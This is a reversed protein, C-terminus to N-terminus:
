PRTFTMHTVGSPTTVSEIQFREELGELGDWLREGRGLVIPVIVVHLHDILDAVLFQRVTSPGGGIRVDLDGAAERAQRLAEEPTADIFHFTTGGEMELAPRPHHTLVFVPTHFPPNPGWWGTWEHNQWPGRQPGFKNRGMIEAGIGANWTRVVADDVGAGGGTKGQMAHFTRTAFFWQHLRDGAHGFPADLSQGEGTAFGDLSVAFNHVRVRSM